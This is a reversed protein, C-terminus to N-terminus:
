MKEQTVGVATVEAPTEERYEIEESVLVFFRKHILSVTDM